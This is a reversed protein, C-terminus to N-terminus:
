QSHVLNKFLYLKSDSWQLQPHVKGPTVSSVSFPTITCLAQEDTQLKSKHWLCGQPRVLKTQSPALLLNQSLLKAKDPRM